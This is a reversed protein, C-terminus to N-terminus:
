IKWNKNYISKYVQDFDLPAYSKNNNLKKKNDLYFALNAIEDTKTYHFSISNESQPLTASLSSLSVKIIWSNKSTSSLLCCSWGLFVM